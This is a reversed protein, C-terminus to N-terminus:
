EVYGVGGVVGDADVGFFVELAYGGDEFFSADPLQFRADTRGFSM